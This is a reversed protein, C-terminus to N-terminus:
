SLRMAKTDPHRWEAPVALRQGYKTPHPVFCYRVSTESRIEALTLKLLKRSNELYKVTIISRGAVHLRALMEDRSLSGNGVENGKLM